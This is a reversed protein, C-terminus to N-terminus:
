EISVAFQPSPHFPVMSPFCCKQLYELLQKLVSRDFMASIDLTGKLFGSGKDDRARPSHPCCCHICKRWREEGRGKSRMLARPFRLPRPPCWLCLLSSQFISLTWWPVSSHLSQDFLTSIECLLIFAQDPMAKLQVKYNPRNILLETIGFDRSLSFNQWDGKFNDDSDLWRQHMHSNRRLESTENSIRRIRSGAPVSDSTANLDNINLSGHFLLTVNINFDRRLHHNHLIKNWAKFSCVKVTTALFARWAAAHLRLWTSSQEKQNQFSSARTEHCSDTYVSLLSLKM